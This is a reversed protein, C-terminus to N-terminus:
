LLKHLVEPSSSHAAAYHIPLVGDSDKAQLQELGGQELLKHLVEPSSSRAAACHIPLWRAPKGDAFFGGTISM